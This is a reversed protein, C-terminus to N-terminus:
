RRSDSQLVKDLAIAKSFGWLKVALRDAAELRGFKWSGGGSREPICLNEANGGGFVECGVTLLTKVGGDPLSPKLGSEELTFLPLECLEDL